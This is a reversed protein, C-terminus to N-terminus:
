PGGNVRALAARGFEVMPQLEVDADAWADVFYRFAQTALQLDGRAEHILGLRYHALPSYWLQRFHPESRELDGLELYIHGLWANPYWDAKRIVSRPWPGLYWSTQDARDLLEIASRSDGRRWAAYGRMESVAADLRRAVAEEGRRRAQDARSEAETIAASHVDWRGLDAAVYGRCALLFHIPGDEDELTTLAAELVGDPVPIGWGLAVAPLCARTVPSVRGEGLYEVARGLHGRKWLSELALIDSVSRQGSPDLRERLSLLVRERGEWDEPHKLNLQAVSLVNVDVSDLPTASPVGGPGARFAVDLALLGGHYYPSGASVGGYQGLRATALASDRHHNFALEVGHPQYLAFAPDLETARRFALDAEEPGTLASTHLHADGLLFWAESDDPYARVAEELLDVAEPRQEGTVHRARVLGAERDPLRDAHRLAMERHRRAAPFQIGQRWAHASALHYHALAFTSDAEIARTYAEIAEDFAAQRSHFEGELYAKLAPVSSTTISALNVPPLEGGGRERIVGLVEVALRDALVLVSDVAGEVQRQGLPVRDDVSYVDATVRAVPGIAVVTGLLAYRAGMDGAISLSATQDLRRTNRSLEDWRAMVTRSPITRLGGAGDLGTSLLNVLGERWEELGAGTIEFPLVAISSSVGAETVGPSPTAARRNSIFLGALGALVAITVVAAVRRAAKSAPRVLEEETIQLADNLARGLARATGYRDAPVKALAKMVVGEVSAPITARVTRMSPVPDLSHRAMVAQASSGAFPAAGTLAEYLVCGLAYVDSRGDLRREGTAQEPSMYSATGVVVGTATLETGGAEVIARAIGFDAILAHGDSLLINEPKIDRHVVGKDHAYGLGDAVERAMAIADGVDLQAERNLRDRLSEGDVHPMVFYFFGGAEGSDYLPLIHPHSLGAAIEIEHLFRETGLAQAVEPRLVKLAVDRNHKLDRALYVIATAGQGLERELRYRDVLHSQMRDAIEGAM